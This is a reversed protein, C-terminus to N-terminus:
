NHTWRISMTSKTHATSEPRYLHREHYGSGRAKLSMVQDIHPKYVCFNGLM